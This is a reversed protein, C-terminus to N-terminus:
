FAQRIQKMLTLLLSKESRTLRRAASLRLTVYQGGMFSLRSLAMLNLFGALYHMESFSRILGRANTGGKGVSQRVLGETDEILEKLSKLNKKFYPLLNQSM